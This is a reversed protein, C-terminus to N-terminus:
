HLSVDINKGEDLQTMPEKLISVQLDHDMTRNEQLIQRVIACQFRRVM